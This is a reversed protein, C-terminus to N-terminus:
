AGSGTRLAAAAAVERCLALSALGDLTDPGHPRGTRVAAAFAALQGDFSADAWPRDLDVREQGDPTTLTAWGEARNVRVEGAPGLIRFDGAPMTPFMWGVELRAVNGNDYRILAATYNDNAFEPRSAVGLATVDLVRGGGLHFVYDTQHAAEHVFAPGHALFHMIRNLHTPDDPDYREDYSSLLFLLPRGLREDRLWQRVRAIVPSFRNVFGVQVVLDSATARDHVTRATEVDVAMPKECLVPLGLRLLELTVAPTVEPPTAVVAGDPAWAAVAESVSAATPVGYRRGLRTRAAEDVDVLGALEVGACRDIAPLHAQAAIDGCGAVVLRVARDVGAM